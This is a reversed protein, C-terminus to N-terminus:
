FPLIEVSSLAQVRDDLWRKYFKYDFTKEEVLNRVKMLDELFTRIEGQKFAIVPVSIEVDAYSLRTAYGYKDEDEGVLMNETISVTKIEVNNEFSFSDLIYAIFRAIDGLTEPPMYKEEGEGIDCLWDLSVNLKKAIETLTDIPPFSKGRVYNSMNATTVGIMEALEVQKIQKRDIATKLRSAFEEKTLVNVVEMGM